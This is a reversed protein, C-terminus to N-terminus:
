GVKNKLKNRIALFALLQLTLSLSMTPVRFRHDGITGLALLWSILVPTALVNALFKEDTGLKRLERYGLGLFLVQGIIWLYSIAVGFPGFVLSQGDQNSKSVQQVPSIKLWPNRAMTGTSEPGSWPSWFFIAKNFSLRATELPNTLYWKLVCVVRENDSISTTPAKPECPVEPGTRDYSGSTEPGAGISM